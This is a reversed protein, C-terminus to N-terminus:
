QRGQGLRRLLSAMHQSTEKTQRAIDALLWLLLGVATLLCGEFSVVGGIALGGLFALGSFDPMLGPFAPPKPAAAGLGRVMLGIGAMIIIVGLIMFISAIIRAFTKM